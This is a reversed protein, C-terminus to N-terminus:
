PSHQLVNPQYQLASSQMQPVPYQRGQARESNQLTYIDEGAVAAPPSPTPFTTLLEARRFSTSDYAGKDKQTDLEDGECVWLGAMYAGPYTSQM